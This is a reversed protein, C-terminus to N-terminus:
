KAAAPAPLVIVATQQQLGCAALGARRARECFGDTILAVKISLPALARALFVAGLAGDTEAAPPPATPIYFGTVTAPRAGKTDALGRCALRFDDACANILNRATETRLGRKGIDKQVIDRMRNLLADM